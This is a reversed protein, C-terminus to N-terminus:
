VCASQSGPHCKGHVSRHNGVLTKMEAADPKRATDSWPAVVASTIKWTGLYFADSASALRISVGLFLLATALTCSQLRAIRRM